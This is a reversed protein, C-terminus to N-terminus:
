IDIIIRTANDMLWRKSKKKEPTCDLKLYCTWVMGKTDSMMFSKKRSSKTRQKGRNNANLFTKM